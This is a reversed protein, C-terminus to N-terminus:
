YTNAILEGERACLSGQHMSNIIILVIEVAKMFWPSETIGVYEPHNLFLEIQPLSPLLNSCLFTWHTSKFEAQGQLGWPIQGRGLNGWCCNEGSNSQWSMITQRVKEQLRKRHVIEVEKALRYREGPTQECWLGGGRWRESNLVYHLWSGCLWM